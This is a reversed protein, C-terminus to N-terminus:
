FKVKESLNACDKFVFIEHFYEGFDGKRSSKMTSEKSIALAHTQGVIDSSFAYSLLSLGALLSFYYYFFHRQGQPTLVFALPSCNQSFQSREKPHLEFFVCVRDM